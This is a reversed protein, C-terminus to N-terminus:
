YVTEATWADRPQSHLKWFEEAVEAAEKSDPLVYKCVVVSAVHVGQNKLPEFLAQVATRLAVKGISLTLYDGTPQFAFGGGTVLLTGTGRAKMPGVAAKIAAVASVANINIDSM